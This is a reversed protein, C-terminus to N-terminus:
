ASYICTARWWKKSFSLYAFSCIITVSDSAVGDVLSNTNEVEGLGILSHNIFDKLIIWWYNNRICPYDRLIHILFCPCHRSSMLHLFIVKMCFSAEAATDQRNAVHDRRSQQDPFSWSQKQSLGGNVGAAFPEFTLVWKKPFMRTYKWRAGEYKTLEGGAGALDM